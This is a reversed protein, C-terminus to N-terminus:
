MIQRHLLLVWFDKMIIINRSIVCSSSGSSLIDIGYAEMKIYNGSINSFRGGHILIGTSGIQITFGTVNVYDATIYVLERGEKIVTSDRDEGILSISKNVILYGIYPSSDNYVFVTDGDSANDIADQISSYNGLGSGGVYLTNGDSLQKSSKKITYFAVSPTVSIGLFLITIGVSLLIKKHM